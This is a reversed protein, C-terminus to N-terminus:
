RKRERVKWKVGAKTVGGISGSMKARQLELEHEAAMLDRERKKLADLQSKHTDQHKRRQKRLKMQAKLVEAQALITNKSTSTSSKTVRDAEEDSDLELKETTQTASTRRRLDFNKQEKTSEVFVLHQNGSDYGGNSFKVVSEKGDKQLIVQQELKERAKRTKQAMTRLYEVDQTKLLKVTDVSLSKNGRDAIKLGKSDTKSSMM